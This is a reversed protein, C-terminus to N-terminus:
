LIGLKKKIKDLIKAFIGKQKYETLEMHQVNEYEVPSICATEERPSYYVAYRYNTFGNDFSGKSSSTADWESLYEENDRGLSCWIINSGEVKYTGSTSRCKSSEGIIRSNYLNPTLSVYNGKLM